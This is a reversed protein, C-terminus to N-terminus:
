THLPIETPVFYGSAQRNDRWSASQARGEVLWQRLQQIVERQSRSLPVLKKLAHLLDDTVIERPPQQPENFAHFLADIVAQEIEAGVYGESANVLLELNFGTPDRRRKKLHVRFIERREEANPLDLFFIEDFRGRRLLEPPLRAVDNATAVVFVPRRKEQMWSLMTAFVRQSTGADGYGTALGKEIEDIWMVCPAVTEALQLARRLNQESEGVLQGFLAGVDLKILPMRWLSAVMKATLSKGTGPVGILAIGKPEPLGYERAEHSFARERMRLWEKLVELGGVDALSTGPALYELAGSARVIRSKEKNILEIDRNDLVGDSVIAKAFARLAQNATLGLAAQVLRDFTHQDGGWVVKTSQLLGDLVQGLEETDPVPYDLLVVEDRLEYPVHDVPTTIVISKRTYKLQQALNRLKRVIRPQRDWCQHFDRLLFVVRGEAKEIAELATIPDKAQFTGLADGALHSFYDAHDWSYLSFGRERCLASVNEVIREEEDSYICVVPFRSRICIDLERKLDM